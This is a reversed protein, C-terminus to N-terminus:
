DTDNLDLNHRHKMRGIAADEFYLCYSCFGLCQYCIYKHLRSYMSLKELGSYLFSAEAGSDMEQESEKEERKGQTNM